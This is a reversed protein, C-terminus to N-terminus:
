ERLITKTNAHTQSVPVTLPTQTLSVATEEISYIGATTDVQWLKLQFNQWNSLNNEHSLGVYFTIM